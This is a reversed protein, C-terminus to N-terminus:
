DRVNRAGKEAEIASDIATRIAAIYDDDNAEDRGLASANIAAEEHFDIEGIGDMLDRMFLLRREDKRAEELAREASEARAKWDTAETTM